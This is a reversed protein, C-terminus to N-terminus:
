ELAQFQLSEVGLAALADAMTHVIAMRPRTPEEPLEFTRFLGFAFSKPNVLILHRRPDAIAPELNALRRLFTRSVAFDSVSTFDTIGARADTASAYKLNAEYFEALSEDTVKGDLRALLVKNVPDFAFSVPM